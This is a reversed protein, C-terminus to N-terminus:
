EWVNVTFAFTDVVEGTPGVSDLEVRHQGVPRSEGDTRWTMVVTHPAGIPIRMGPPPEAIEIEPYGLTRDVRTVNWRQGASGNETLRLVIPQGLRVDFSGGNDGDRIVLGEDSEGTLNISFSFTRIAEEGSPPFYGLEVTYFGPALSADSTTWTMRTFGPAGFIGPPADTEFDSEPTGLEDGSILQWRHGTSPSSPLRLVIDQGKAVDLEAGDDSAEIEVLDGTRDRVVISFSFREVVEAGAWVPAYVLEVPHSGPLLDETDWRFVSTGGAGVVGPRGNSEFTETPDGLSLDSRVVSWRHGTSPNSELRLVIAQGADIVIRAGQNAATVIFDNADAKAGISTGLDSPPTEEVPGACGATTALGIQVIAFCVRINM